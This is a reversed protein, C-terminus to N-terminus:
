VFYYMPCQLMPPSSNSHYTWVREALVIGESLSILDDICPHLHVPEVGIDGEIICDQLKYLVFHVNGVGIKMQTATATITVEAIVGIAALRVIMNRFETSLIGVKVDYKREQNEFNIHVNDAQILELEMIRFAQMGIPPVCCNLMPLLSYSGYICVMESLSIAKGISVLHDVRFHLLIPDTGTDGEIVCEQLHPLIHYVGTVSFTVHFRHITVVVITSGVSTRAMDAIIARFKATLIGVSVDYQRVQNFFNMHEANPQILGMSLSTYPTSGINPMTATLKGGEDEVVGVTVPLNDKSLFHLYRYLMILDFGAVDGEHCLFHDFETSSIRLIAIAHGDLITALLTVADTSSNITTATQAQLNTLPTLARKLDIARNLKFELLM